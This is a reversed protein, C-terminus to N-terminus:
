LIGRRVGKLNYLLLQKQVSFNGGINNVVRLPEDFLYPARRVNVLGHMSASGPNNKVGPFNPVIVYKVNSRRLSMLLKWARRPPWYGLGYWVFALDARPLRSAWANSNKVITASSFQRFRNIGEILYKDSPAICRYQFNPIEFELIKLVQPMWFMSGTCPIDIVSSINHAKLLRYVMFSLHTLNDTKFLVSNASNRPVGRFEEHPRHPKSSNLHALESHVKNTKNRSAWHNKFSEKSTDNQKSIIINKAELGTFAQGTVTMQEAHPDLYKTQEHWSLSDANLPDRGFQRKENSFSTAKSAATTFQDNTETRPVSGISSGRVILKTKRSKETRPLASLSYQFPQSHVPEIQGTTYIADRTFAEFVFISLTLLIAMIHLISEISIWWVRHRMSRFLRNCM